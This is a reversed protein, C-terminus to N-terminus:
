RRYMKSILILQKSIESFVQIVFFFYFHTPYNLREVQMSATPVRSKDSAM